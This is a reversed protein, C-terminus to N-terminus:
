FGQFIPTYSLQSLVQRARLPDPTRDEEDGGFPLYSTSCSGYGSLFPFSNLCSRCLSQFCDLKNTIRLLLALPTLKFLSSRKRAFRSLPRMAWTTLACAQYAHPRHNSDVQAWWCRHRQMRYRRKSALLLICTQFVAPRFSIFFLDDWILSTRTELLCYFM